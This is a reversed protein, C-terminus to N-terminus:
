VCRSTYLLCATLLGVTVAGGGLVIAAAAPFVVRPTGFIMAILDFVFTARVNPATRLFRLSDGVSVFSAGIERVLARVRGAAEDPTEAGAASVQRKYVDGKKDAHWATRLEARPPANKAWLDIAADAKQVGRPWPRDVLVRMGDSPEAMAYIRKIKVDM